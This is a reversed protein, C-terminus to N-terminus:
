IDDYRGLVVNLYIPIDGKYEDKHLTNNINKLFNNLERVLFKHGKTNINPGIGIGKSYESNFCNEELIKSLELKKIMWQLNYEFLKFVNESDTEMLSKFPETRKISNNEIKVMEKKILLDVRMECENKGIIGALRELCIGHSALKFIHNTVPDSLIEDADSSILQYAYDEQCFEEWSSCKGPHNENLFAFAEVRPLGIERFLKKCKEYDLNTKEGKSLKCLYSDSIKTKVALYKWSLNKIKAVNVHWDKLIESLSRIKQINSSM